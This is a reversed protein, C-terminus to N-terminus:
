LEKKSESLAEEIIYLKGEAITETYTRKWFHDESIGSDEALNYGANERSTGHDTKFQDQKQTATQDDTEQNLKQQIYQKRLILTEYREKQKEPNEIQSLVKKISLQIISHIHESFIITLLLGWGKINWPAGEAELRGESFLYVLAASTISGLWTLFIMADKWPGISDARWPIPRQTDLVIKLADGRIEIWNNIFFSCATVPWIVSFLSLYGYQVIIERFDSTVDYIELHAERKVRDLFESEDNSSLNLTDKKLGTHVQVKKIKNFFKRKVYPLIVETGFGIIQATVTFYIVQKELRDPNIKFNTNVKNMEGDETGHRVVLQFVDLFPVLVRAFPVYIFATLFIPLYSTIFNLVFIKQIMSVEHSHLTKHNELDSLNSAISTLFSLLKPLVTSLILTPLFILYKKFPGSYVESLFIEISFCISILSGTAVVAVVTFLVQPLQWCFRNLISFSLAHEATAPHNSIGRLKFEARQKQIFHIDQVEWHVALDQQKRKWYELFFISWLGNVIAYTPSYSDLFLWAFLGFGAPFALFLFYTQLFAFYFAIKEGFKAQVEDLDQTTLFYKSSLKKVWEKNFIPDHLPFISKVIKWEGTNPTIGAGGESKPCTVLSYILRLREAETIPKKELNKQMEDPPLTPNVAYSWEQLRSRYVEFNLDNESAMKIFIYLSSEDGKRVQVEFGVVNLAKILKAFQADAQPKDIDEYNFHIVYDVNHSIKQRNFETTRSSTSLSM